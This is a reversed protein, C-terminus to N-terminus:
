KLRVTDKRTFWIVPLYRPACVGFPPIPHGPKGVLIHLIEHKVVPEVASYTTALTIRKADIETWGGVNAIAGDPQVVPFVKSVVLQWTVHDFASYRGACMEMDLWWARYHNPPNPM